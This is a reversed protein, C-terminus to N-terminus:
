KRINRLVVRIDRDDRSPLVIDAYRGYAEFKIKGAWSEGSKVYDSLRMSLEKRPPYETPIGLDNIQTMIEMCKKLRAEM